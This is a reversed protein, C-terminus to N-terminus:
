SLRGIAKIYTGGTSTKVWEKHGKGCAGTGGLELPDNSVMDISQLLDPVYGTLTVPSVIKGTIKGNIVERGKAIVCQIGWNKPDEMGSFFGELIYGKKISKIMDPLLDNGGEFFTNTMRAYAKRQYSERRGNGTPTTGLKLASLLDSIGSKLISKEIVLTDTGLTGEDDFLFTGVEIESLAGDRMNVKDSAIVKNMYEQGKARNKVFMDMEVGHGFAEHAILGSVSPDCIIEYDGPIINESDFLEKVSNVVKDIKSIAEEMIEYGKLGSLGEFDYKVGKESRGIAVVHMNTYLISQSLDKHTSLFIKSIKVEEFSVRFDLLQDCKSLGLAKIENMKKLKDEASIEFPNIQYDSSFDKIMNEDEILPFEMLKFGKDVLIKIDNVAVNTIREKITEMNELSNFSYESYNVGNFVRVVFGREKWNSDNVGSGTVSVNYATGVTDSGLLSVYKFEKSLDTVLKKLLLKNDLLFKSLKAKL